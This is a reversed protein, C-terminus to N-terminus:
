SGDFIIEKLNIKITSVDASKYIKDLSRYLSFNMPVDSRILHSSNLSSTEKYIIKESILIDIVEDKDMGFFVTVKAGSLNRKTQNEITAMVRFAKIGNYLIIPELLPLRVIVDPNTIKQDTCFAISKEEIFCGLQITKLHEPRLYSNASLASSLLCFFTFFNRLNFRLM